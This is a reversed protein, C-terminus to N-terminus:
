EGQSSFSCQWGPTIPLVAPLSAYDVPQIAQGLVNLLSHLGCRHKPSLKFYAHQTFHQVSVIFKQPTQSLCFICVNPGRQSVDFVYKPM